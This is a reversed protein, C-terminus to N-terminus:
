LEGQVGGAGQVNQMRVGAFEANHGRCVRCGSGQVSQMRVGACVRAVYSQTHECHFKSRLTAEIVRAAFEFGPSYGFGRGCGEVM